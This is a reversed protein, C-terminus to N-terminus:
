VIVIVSVVSVFKVTCARYTTSITYPMWFESGTYTGLGLGLGVRYVLKNATKRWRERGAMCCLISAPPAVTLLSACTPTRQPFYLQEYGTIDIKEM